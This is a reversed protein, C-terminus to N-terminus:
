ERERMDKLDKIAGEVDALSDQLIQLQRQKEILEAQDSIKTLEVRVTIIRDNIQGRRSKAFDLRTDIMGIRTPEFARRLKDTQEQAQSRAYERHAPLVPEIYPWAGAAAVLTTFFAAVMAMINRGRRPLGTWWAM